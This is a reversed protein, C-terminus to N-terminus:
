VVDTYHRGYLVGCITARSVDYLMALAKTHAGYKQKVRIDRVDEETLKARPGRTGRYDPSRGRAVKDRMNQTLNGLTMHNPNCCSPNDCRHRIFQPISVDKPARLTIAGPNAILYAVRPAYVGDEGWIDLRGYGQASRYKGLWPWCEDSGKRDIKRWFSEVSHAM